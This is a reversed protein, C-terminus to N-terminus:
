KTSSKKEKVFEIKYIIEESEFTKFQINKRQLIDEVAMKLTVQEYEELNFQKRFAISMWKGIECNIKEAISDIKDLFVQLNQKQDIASLKEYELRESKLQLIFDEVLTSDIITDYNKKLYDLYSHVRNGVTKYDISCNLYNLEELSKNAFDKPLLFAYIDEKDIRNFVFVEDEYLNTNIPFGSTLAESKTKVGAQYAGVFSYFAINNDIFNRYAEGNIAVNRSDVASIWMNSNNGHFNRSLKIGQKKAAYESLIGYELISELKAFDFGIGHFCANNKEQNKYITEFKNFNIDDIIISFLENINFATEVLEKSIDLRLFEEKLSADVMKPFRARDLADADKLIQYLMNYRDFFLDYDLSYNSFNIEKYKDDKSHGDCISKLLNMNNSNKKYFDDKFIRDMQNASILGHFAEESEDQRGVDHYVAADLLIKMDVENLNIKKAILYAFLMVKQSHHLGHYLFKYLENKRIDKNLTKLFEIDTETLENLKPIQKYNDLIINFILTQDKM